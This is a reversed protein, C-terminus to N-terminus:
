ENITVLGLTDVIELRYACKQYDFYMAYEIFCVSFRVYQVETSPEIGSTELLIIKSKQFGYEDAITGIIRQKDKKTMDTKGGKLKQTERKGVRLYILM